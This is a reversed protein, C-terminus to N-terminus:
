HIALSIWNRPCDRLCHGLSAPDEDVDDWYSRDGEREVNGLYSINSLSFKHLFLQFTGSLEHLYLHALALVPCVVHVGGLGPDVGGEHEPVRHGEDPVGGHGCTFM